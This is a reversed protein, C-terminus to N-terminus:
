SVNRLQFNEPVEIEFQRLLFKIETNAYRIPSMYGNVFLPHSPNVEVDLFQGMYTRRADLYTLLYAEDEPDMGIYNEAL